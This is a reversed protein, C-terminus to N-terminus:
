GGRSRRFRGPPMGTHRRIARTLHSQDAFGARFAISSIPEDTDLLRRTAWELRLQRLYAGPSTGYHQRFTRSLHAPHVAAEAALTEMGPADLPDDHLREVVRTLWEPPRRRGDDPDGRRAAGALMELGLGELTLESLADPRTIERRVRRALAALPADRFCRVGDLLRRCDAPLDAGPDPQVVVVHAGETGIRNEHAEGGPETFVTSPTCALSRGNVGLDFSGDLMVALVARDHVHRELVCGPPFWALVMEFRELPVATSRPSGMTVPVVAEAM